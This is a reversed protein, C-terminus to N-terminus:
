PIYQGYGHQGSQKSPPGTGYVVREVWVTAAAGGYACRTTLHDWRSCRMPSLSVRRTREM